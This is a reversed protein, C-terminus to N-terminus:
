NDDIIVEALRGDQLTVSPIYPRPNNRKWWNGTQKRESPTTFEYDYATARMYRPPNEPFPNDALLALVNPQGELLRVVLSLFWPHSRYSGLAAFWMQWDLRPQHPQVLRPPQDLAGPKYKFEYAQWERLDNSGEVIIEPRKETMNAFLGYSNVSRYQAMQRFTQARRKSLHPEKISLDWDLRKNTVRAFSHATRHVYHWSLPLIMCTSWTLFGVIVIAVVSLAPYFGQRSTNLWHPRSRRKFRERIGQPLSQDAVLLLAIVFALLNFYTYNGTAAIIVMLLTFGWFAVLRPQRPLVIFLSLAIEIVYTLVVSLKHIWQPLHHVYYSTWVPLPQTWYHYNLATLDWWVDDNSMLKVLGSQLMLRFLLWWLLFRAVTRPVAELGLWLLGAFPSDPATRPSASLLFQMPALFIAIFGAELLLNEWQFSLFTQGVTSLSLYLAWLLVLVVGPLVGAILFLSLLTGAACQVHLGIDGELYLSFTPAVSYPSRGEERAFKHASDAFQDAPLIGQSGILGDVQVWLSVFAVLYVLGLGRLFFARSANYSSPEPVRGWLWRTVSSFIARHSAVFRYSAECAPALGPIKEYLWGPWAGFPAHAYADFVARAATTVRGDVDIFIVATEFQEPTIEPFQHGVDQSAAYEVRNGTVHKWREIWYKCFGCNGDYVLLPREAPPSAVTLPIDNVSIM